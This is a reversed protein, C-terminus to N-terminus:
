LFAAVPSYAALLILRTKLLFSNDSSLVQHQNELLVGKGKGVDHDDPRGTQWECRQIEIM